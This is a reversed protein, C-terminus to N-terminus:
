CKLAQICRDLVLCIKDVQQANLRKKDREPAVAAEGPEQFFQIKWV